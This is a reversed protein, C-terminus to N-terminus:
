EAARQADQHVPDLLVYGHDRFYAPLQALPLRHHSGDPQWVPGTPDPSTSTAIATATVAM